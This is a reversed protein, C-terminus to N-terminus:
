QATTAPAASSQPTSPSEAPTASSRPPATSTPASAAKEKDIEANIADMAEQELRGNSRWYHWVNTFREEYGSLQALVKVGIRGELQEFSVMVKARGTTWGPSRIYPVEGYDPMVANFNDENALIRFGSEILNRKKSAYNAPYGLSELATKVAKFVLDYEMPYEALLASGTTDVPRNDQTSVPPPADQATAAPVGFVM